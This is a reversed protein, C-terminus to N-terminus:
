EEFVRAGEISRGILCKFLNLRNLQNTGEYIQLLKSDRLHKEAGRDHRLGARGMLELALHGNKVGIDTATFKSLSGWGSTCQYDTDKQWDFYIKRFLWTVLDLNLLPQIVKDLIPRPMYKLYYYIPWWSMAKFMGQFDNAYNAEEYTLRGVAVNKYMEALVCQAWEHNILPRGDVKTEQAFRLAEEYAGRAVGTGFAGVGARSASVVYDILQMHTGTMPRKLKKGQEKDICVLDDPVFCDEFILESAPCGKQGMKREQRGFSFGKMDNNIALMVPTEQPNKLDEYCILMHWYSLHGNSIFIKRGNVVYGGKVKEAQCAVQAKSVLDVEEVDTGAGPETIALSILCPKGTKEGEVTDRMIKNMLRMNWSACLTAVGLYHVGVLNSMGTCGSALEEVIYSFAPFNVGKGGFLSPICITYFGWRNAEKVFEWPLFDPDEDKKRDLELAYPKVVTQNFRRAMAVAEKTEKVMAKPLRPMALLSVAIDDFRPERELLAKSGNSGM